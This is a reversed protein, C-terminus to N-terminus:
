KSMKLVKLTTQKAGANVRLFYMGNVMQSVDFEEQHQNSEPVFSRGLVKRGSIDILDLNVSVGKVNKVKLYLTQSVPNPAIEALENQEVTALSEAAERAAGVGIGDKSQIRFWFEQYALVNGQAQRTSPYISGWGKMDWYRIGLKYSGKPLGVDYVNGGSGNDLYFGYAPHNQAYLETWGERNAYMFYPANNEHTNFSQISGREPLVSLDFTLSGDTNLACADAHITWYRPSKKNTNETFYLTPNQQTSQVLEPGGDKTIIQSEWASRSNSKVASKSQGVNILTVVFSNWYIDKHTSEASECGGEFVCKAWYTQKTAQNFSVELDPTNLGTNWITSSGVPCNASIKVISAAAGLVAADLQM